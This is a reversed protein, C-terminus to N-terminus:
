VKARFALRMVYGVEMGRAGHAARSARVSWAMPTPPLRETRGGHTRESVCAVAARLAAESEDAVSGRRCRVPQRRARM